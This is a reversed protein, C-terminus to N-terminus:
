ALRPSHVPARTQVKSSENEWILFRGARTAFPARSSLLYVLSVSILRSPIAVSTLSAGRRRGQPDRGDAM